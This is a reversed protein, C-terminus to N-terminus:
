SVECDKPNTLTRLSESTEQFLDLGLIHFSISTDPLNIPTLSNRSRKGHRNKKKEEEGNRMGLPKLSCM